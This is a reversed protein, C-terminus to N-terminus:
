NKDCSLYAWRDVIVVSVRHSEEFTLLARARVMIDFVEACDDGM